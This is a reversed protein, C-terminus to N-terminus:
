KTSQFCHMLIMEMISEKDLNILDSTVCESSQLTPGISAPKSAFLFDNHCSILHELISGICMGEDEEGPCGWITSAEHIDEPLYELLKGIDVCNGAMLKEIRQDQILGHIANRM